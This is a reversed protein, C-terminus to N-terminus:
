ILKMGTERNAIRGAGGVTPALSAVPGVPTMCATTAQAATVVNLEQAAPAVLPFYSFLRFVSSYGGKAVDVGILLCLSTNTLLSALWPRSFTLGRYYGRSHCKPSLGIARAHWKM